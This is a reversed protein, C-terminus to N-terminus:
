AYLIMPFVLPRESEGKGGREVHGHDAERERGKKKRGAKRFYLELVM